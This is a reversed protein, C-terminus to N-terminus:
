PSKRCTITSKCSRKSGKKSRSLAKKKCRLNAESKKLYRSNVVKEGSDLIAFHSLGIDIGTIQNLEIGQPPKAEPKQDDILISAFYKGTVTRSVTISKIAGEISRHIKTKISQCKPIKIWDEGVSVHTCHYSSQKGHKREFRPFRAAM